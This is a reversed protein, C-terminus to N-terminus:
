HALWVLRRYENVSIFGKWATNNNESNNIADCPNPTMGRGVLQPAALLLHTILASSISINDDDIDQCLIRILPYELAIKVSHRSLPNSPAVYVVCPEGFLEVFEILTIGAESPSMEIGAVYPNDPIIAIKGWIKGVSFRVSHLSTQKSIEGNNELLGLAENITTIGPIINMFCPKNDCFGFGLEHLKESM